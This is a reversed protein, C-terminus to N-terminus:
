DQHREHVGEDDLILKNNFEKCIEQHFSSPGDYTMMRRLHDLASVGENNRKSPDAGTYLILVACKAANNAFIKVPCQPDMLPGIDDITKCFISLFSNGEEDCTSPHIERLLLAMVKPENRRCAAQIYRIRPVEPTQPWFKRAFASAEFPNVILAELYAIHSNEIAWELPTKGWFASNKPSKSCNHPGLCMHPDAGNTVLVVIAIQRTRAIALHLPTVGAVPLVVNPDTKRLVSCLIRGYQGNSTSTGVAAELYATRQEQTPQYKAHTCIKEVIADLGRTIAFALAGPQQGGPYTHVDAGYDLLLSFALFNGREIAKQLPFDPGSPKNPDAGKQLLLKVVSSNGAKCAEVMILESNPPMQVEIFLKAWVSYGQRVCHLIRQPDRLPGYAQPFKALCEFTVKADLPMVLDIISNIEESTLERIGKRMLLNFKESSGRRLSREILKFSDENDLAGLEARDILLEVIETGLPCSLAYLLAQYIDDYRQPDHALLTKVIRLKEGDFNPDHESCVTMLATNGLIDKADINAGADLLIKVIKDFNRKCAAILPTTDRHSVATTAPTIQGRIELDAGAKILAGVVHIRFQEQFSERKFSEGKVPMKECCAFLMASIPDVADPGESFSKTLDIGSNLFRLAEYFRCSNCAHQILSTSGLPVNVSAGAYMLLEITDWRNAHYAYSMPTYGLHDQVDLDTQYGQNILFRVISVDNLQCATHLATLCSRGDELLKPSVHISAGRSLLLRVTSEHGHCIATHLPTLLPWADNNGSPLQQQETPSQQQGTPIACKCYGRSLADIEAGHKLLLQVMDDRGMGAAMHLLTWHFKAAPIVPEDHLVLNDQQDHHSHGGHALRSPLGFLHMPPNTHKSVMVLNPDIGADLLRGVAGLNGSYLISTLLAANDKHRVYLTNTLKDHLQHCTRSLSSLSGDDLYGATCLVLELPTDGLSLM